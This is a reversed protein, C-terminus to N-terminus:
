KSRTESKKRRNSKTIKINRRAENIHQTLAIVVKGTDNDFDMFQRNKEQLRRQHIAKEVIMRKRSKINQLEKIQRVLSSNNQENIYIKNTQNFKTDTSQTFKSNQKYKTYSKFNRGEEDEEAGDYQFGKSGSKANSSGRTKSKRTKPQKKKLKSSQKDRM